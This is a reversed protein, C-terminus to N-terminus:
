QGSAPAAGRSPQAAHLLPEIQALLQRLVRERNVSHLREFQVATKVFCAVSPGRFYEWLAGLLFPASTLLLAIRGRDHIFVAGTLFGAGVFMWVGGRIWRAVTRRWVFAEVDAFYFRRYREGIPTSGVLLLHDAGLWLRHRSLLSGGSGPLRRYSNSTSTSVPSPASSPAGPM